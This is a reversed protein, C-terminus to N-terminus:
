QRKWQAIQMLNLESAAESEVGSLAAEDTLKEETKFTNIKSSGMVPPNASDSSNQEVLEHAKPTAKELGSETTYTTSTTEPNESTFLSADSSAILDNLDIKPVIETSPEAVGVVSKNEILEDPKITEPNENDTSSEPMSVVSKNEVVEDSKTTESHENELSSDPIEIISKDEVSEDPKSTEPNENETSLEPIGIASKDEVLEDSKSVKVPAINELATSSMFEM